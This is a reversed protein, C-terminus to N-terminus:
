PLRSATASELLQIRQRLNDNEAKLDRIAQLMLYPLESYNVKKFGDKDLAVM